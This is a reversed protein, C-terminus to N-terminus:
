SESGRRARMYRQALHYAAVTAALMLFAALEVMLLYPGYLALSVDRPGVDVGAIPAGEGILVRGLEIALVAALAAPLLWARAPMMRRERAVAERGMALMMVVFLFLVMIAGAYVVVHLVAAFPAGLAFFVVAIALISVLMHLLAHSANASTVVLLAAAVAVAGAVYFLANEM